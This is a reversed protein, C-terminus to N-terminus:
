RRAQGLLRLFEIYLWVLTVLLAFGGFWEMAKPARAAAAREILDFDLLLNLAAVGVIVLSIGIGIPGGSHLYPVSMSTFSNLLIDVLYVLFIGGTAMMVGMRFKNTVKILGSRYLLLMAALTGFTLGVAQIVIGPYRLEFMASIGGLAFGEAIAYLPATVGSWRPAFSTILALVLGGLLGGWLYPQILNMGAQPNPAAYFQGWTWGATILVLVLLIATKGITGNVTMAEGAAVTQNFAKNRLVPNGSRRLNRM